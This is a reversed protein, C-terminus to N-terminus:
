CLAAIALYEEINTYGDDDKDESHDNADDPDLGHTLEWMDPMGDHDSDYDIPHSTPEGFVNWTRQQSVNHGDARNNEGIGISGKGSYFEAVLREDVADRKPKSAGVCSMFRSGKAAMDRVSIPSDTAANFKPTGDPTDSNFHKIRSAWWMPRNNPIFYNDGILYRSPGQEDSAGLYLACRYKKLGCKPNALDSKTNPGAKMLNNDIIADVGGGVHPQVTLGVGYWNYIINNKLEGSGGWIMANRSSNHAIFNNVISCNTLSYNPNNNNCSPGMSHYFREPYKVSLSHSSDADGEAIISNSLTINNIGAEQGPGLYVQFGEDTAWSFSMHDLIVNESGARITFARGSESLSLGVDIMRLACHRFVIDRAGNDINFGQTRIVVGPAPASQCAVTVNSGNEGRMRLEKSGVDFVGGVSFVITRPGTEFEIAERLSMLSDDSNVVNDVTNVIVIRGKRGGVSHKGFGLAGPFALLGETRQLAEVQELALLNDSLQVYAESQRQSLYTGVGVMSTILVLVSGVVWAIRQHSMTPSPTTSASNFM